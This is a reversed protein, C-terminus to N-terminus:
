ELLWDIATAKKKDGNFTGGKTLEADSAINSTHGITHIHKKDFYPILYLNLAFIFDRYVKRGIKSDLATKMEAIAIQAISRFTRNIIPLNNKAKFSDAATEKAEKFNQKGTTLRIWRANLKFRIQWASSTDRRSLVVRGDLIKNEASILRPM